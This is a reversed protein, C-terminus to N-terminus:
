GKTSKTTERGGRFKRQPPIWRRLIFYRKLTPDIEEQNFKGKPLSGDGWSLIERQPPTKIKKNRKLIPERVKLHISERKGGMVKKLTPDM